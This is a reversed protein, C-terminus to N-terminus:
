RLKKPQDGFYFFHTSLIAYRGRLDRERDNEGHVGQRIEPREPHSFDYVSDGVRQKPDKSTWSPIKGPLHTHTYHDYAEMTMKQTVRIAYVVSDSLDGLKSKSSGTGVIWDGVQATRRIAPKCIVLTCVGWFPNPAAGADHKLCYSYLTSM